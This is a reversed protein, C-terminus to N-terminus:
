HCVAHQGSLAPPPNTPTPPHLTVEFHLLTNKYINHNHCDLTATPSIEGRTGMLAMLKAGAQSAVSAQETLGSPLNVVRQNM